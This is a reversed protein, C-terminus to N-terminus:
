EDTNKLEGADVQRLIDRLEDVMREIMHITLELSGMVAATGSWTVLKMLRGEDKVEAVRRHILSYASRFTLLDTEHERLELAVARRSISERRDEASVSTAEPSSEIGTSSAGSIVSDGAGPGEGGNRCEHVGGELCGDTHQYDAAYVSSGPASVNEVEGHEDSEKRRVATLHTGYLFSRVLSMAKEPGHDHLWGYILKTVNDVVGDRPYQANTLVLNKDVIKRIDEVPPIVECDLLFRELSRTLVASAVDSSQPQKRPM